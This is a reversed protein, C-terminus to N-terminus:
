KKILEIMIKEETIIIANFAGSQITDRTTDYVILTDYTASKIELGQDSSWAGAACILLLLYKM